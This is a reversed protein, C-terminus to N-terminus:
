KKLTQLFSGLLGGLLSGYLTCNYPDSLISCASSSCDNNKWYLFGAVAGIMLGIALLKNKNWWKKM